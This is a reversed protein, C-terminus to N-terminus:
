QATSHEAALSEDIRRLTTRKLKGSHIERRSTLELRDFAAGVFYAPPYSQKDSRGNLGTTAIAVRAHPATLIRGMVPGIQSPPLGAFARPDGTAFASALHAATGRDGRMQYELRTALREGSALWTFVDEGVLARKAKLAAGLATAFAVIFPVYELMRGRRSSSTNSLDDFWEFLGVGFVVLLITVAVLSWFIVVTKTVHKVEHRVLDTRAVLPILDPTPTRAM